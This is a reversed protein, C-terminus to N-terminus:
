ATLIVRIMKVRNEIGKKAAMPQIKFSGTRKLIPVPIVTIEMIATHHIQATNVLIHWLFSHADPIENSMHMGMPQPILRTTDQKQACWDVLMEFVTM